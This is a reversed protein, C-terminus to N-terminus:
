VFLCAASGAVLIFNAILFILTNIQELVERSVGEKMELIRNVRRVFLAQFLFISFALSLLLLYIKDTITFYSVKPMMNEIVFRYGLLAPMPSSSLAFRQSTNRTSTIFSYIGLLIAFYLPIFIVSTKKAGKKALKITFRVNPFSVKKKVDSEDLITDTYGAETKLDEINWDAIFLDKEAQFSSDNTVFYIEKPTAFNNTLVLSIQHDGLPFNKHNLSSKFSVRVQYKVITKDEHVRIDPSTKKIIDGNLFSFQELTELMVQDSEYEFWVIAEALFSNEKISFVPFSKLLMGTNVKVTFAGFDKQEDLKIVKMSGVQDAIKKQSLAYSFLGLISVITLFLIVIKFIVAKPLTEVLFTKLVVTVKDKKM